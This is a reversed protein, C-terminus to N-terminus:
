FIHLLVFRHVDDTLAAEATDIQDPVVLVTGISQLLDVHIGKLHVLCELFDIHHLLEHMWIEYLDIITM